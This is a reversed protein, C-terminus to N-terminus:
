PVKPHRLFFDIFGKRIEIHDSGGYTVPELERGVSLNLV